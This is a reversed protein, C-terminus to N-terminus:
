SPIGQEPQGANQGYVRKPQKATPLQLPFTDISGRNQLSLDAVHKLRSKLHQNECATGVVKIGQSTTVTALATDAVMM